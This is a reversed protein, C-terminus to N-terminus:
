VRDTQASVRSREFGPEPESVPEAVAEAPSSLAWGGAHGVVSLAARALSARSWRKGAFHQLGVRIVDPTAHLFQELQPRRRGYFLPVVLSRTILDRGIMTSTIERGWDEFSLEGTELKRALYRGAVAGYQIAQAIGEGTVADIGAAEGILLVRARSVPTHRDFGREAFRKKRYSSLELGLAALRRELVRQIEVRPGNGGQTLLYVGRCVRERGGVLTPFEWYYGSFSRDEVDFMLLDRAPDLDTPETDVELAQAYYRTSPVGLARRVMSGVGDAGVLVRTSFRGASTELEVGGAGFAIRSVHAGEVIRIGRERALRALEHDFEIRRVVRGIAGERVVTTRGMARFAVGDLWVSPVEVRLGISGLLRDARAGVGGACFKERPYHEKELVVIRPTREPAAHALFLAASLGAPGGGVIVVQHRNQLPRSFVGDAAPLGRGAMPWARARPAAPVRAPSAASVRAALLVGAGVALSGWGPRAREGQSGRISAAEQRRPLARGAPARHTPAAAQRRVSRAAGASRQM